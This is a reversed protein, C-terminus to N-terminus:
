NLLSKPTCDDAPYVTATQGHLNWWNRWKEQLAAIDAESMDENPVATLHTLDELSHEATERVDSEPDSLMEILPAVALRSRTISLDFASQARLAPDTSQAESLFVPVANDRGLEATAVGSYFRGDKATKDLFAHLVLSFYQPDGMEGLSLIALNRKSGAIDWGDKPPHLDLYYRAVGAIRERATASNINQLGELGYYWEESDLLGSLTAELHAPATYAIAEAGSRRVDPDPSALTDEYPRFAMELDVHTAPALDVELDSEIMKYEFNKRSGGTPRWGVRRTAHIQYKGPHPFRYYYNLLIEQKVKDGAAVDAHSQMCSGGVYGDCTGDSRAERAVDFHYGACFTLPNADEITIAESDRNELEFVLYIPAGVFLPGQKVHFSGTPPTAALVNGAVSALLFILRAAIKV